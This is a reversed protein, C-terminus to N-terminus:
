YYREVTSRTLNFFALVLPIDWRKPDLKGLLENLAVFVEKPASTGVNIFLEM